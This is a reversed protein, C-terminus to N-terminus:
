KDFVVPKSIIGGFDSIYSITIEDNSHITTVPVTLSEFPVIMESVTYEKNNVLINRVTIHFPSDNIIKIRNGKREYRLKNYDPETLGAPRYFLKFKSNIVIQLKNERNEDTEPIGKINLWLLSERDDPFETKKLMVRLIGKKGADLQFIVPTLIFDKSKTMGDEKEVWSQILYASKKDTNDVPITIMKKDQPYIFRTGGVVVGATARSMTLFFIIILFTFGIKM